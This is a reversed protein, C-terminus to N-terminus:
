RVRCWMSPGEGCTAKGRVRYHDLKSLLVGYDMMNFAKKLDIFVGLAVDERGWAATVKVMDLIAMATSHGSRFGYRGMTIVRHSELFEVLRVKLVREFLQMLVPLVSVLRYNSFETPDGGGRLSPCWGQLRSVNQTSVM